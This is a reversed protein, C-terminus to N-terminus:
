SAAPPTSLSFALIWGVPLAALDTETALAGRCGVCTQKAYM